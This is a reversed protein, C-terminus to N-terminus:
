LMTTEMIEPTTDYTVEGLHGPHAEAELIALRRNLLTIRRNLETARRSQMALSGIFAIVLLYLLLDAGRGVGFWSAVDTLLEPFIVAATAIAAFALLFMRRFAMHRSSQTSHGLLYTVAIIAALLIIQILL